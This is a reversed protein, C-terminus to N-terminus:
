KQKMFDKIDCLIYCQLALLVVGPISYMLMKPWESTPSVNSTNPSHSLNLSSNNHLSPSYYPYPSIHQHCLSSCQSRYSNQSYISQVDFDYDDRMPYPSCYGSPSDSYGAFKDRKAPIILKPPQIVNNKASYRDNLNMGQFMNVTKHFTKKRKVPFQEIEDIDMM